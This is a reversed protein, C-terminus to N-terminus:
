VHANSHLVHELGLTLEGHQFEYGLQQLRSPKVRQSALLLSDAMEKGLAVRLAFAPAAFLSPRHMARALEATFKANRVPEPAVVNLAGSVGANELAYRLVGIADDLSVWSMWQRGSGLKGGIGFKFPKMMLPLAGGSKALIIGFRACVVRMGLDQAKMAECEWEATLGALFDRGPASEETLLEDGRDGFIGIASASVFVKPALGAKQLAALLSRTTKVRSSRLQMKRQTTWKGEAISAGALNVVADAGATYGQPDGIANAPSAEPDWAVDFVCGDLAAARAADAKKESKGKSGKGSTVSERRLLRCVAHGDRALSNVLATGVLGTAGTVLVKM